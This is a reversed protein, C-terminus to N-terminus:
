LVTCSVSTVAKMYYQDATPTYSNKAKPIPLFKEMIANCMSKWAAMGREAGREVIHQRSVNLFMVMGFRYVPPVARYM